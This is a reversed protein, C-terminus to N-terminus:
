EHGDPPVSSTWGALIVDAAHVTGSIKDAALVVLWGASRGFTGEPLEVHLAELTTGVDLGSSRSQHLLQRVATAASRGGSGDSRFRSPANISNIQFM